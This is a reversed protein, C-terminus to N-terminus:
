HGLVRAVRDYVIRCRPSFSSRKGVMCSVGHDEATMVEPCIQVAEGACSMAEQQLLDTMVPQSGALCPSAIGLALGALTSPSLRIM